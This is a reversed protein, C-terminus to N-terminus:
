IKPEIKGSPLPEPHVTIDSGPALKRIVEEAQETLHHAEELSLNPDALIHIDIFLTPGSTRIRIQHCNTIGPIDEVAQKIKENLGKPSQDLLGAITRKGLRVSVYIVICAVVLAAVADAKSLFDLAPFVNALRVGILGLIVM